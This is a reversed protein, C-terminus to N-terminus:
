SKPEYHYGIIQGNTFKKKVLVYKETCMVCEETFKVDNAMLLKIISKHEFKFFETKNAAM